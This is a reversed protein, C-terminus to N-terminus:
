NVPIGFRGFFWEDDRQRRERLRRRTEFVDGEVVQALASPFSSDGAHRAFTRELLREGFHVVALRLNNHLCTAMDVDYHFRQRFLHGVEVSPVVLCEYGLLWLRLSLESDEGGWGQFGADFGGASEFVERRMAFFCGCLMPVPHPEASQWGLWRCGFSLDDFTYGYGKASANGVVSIAPGAAGVQARALVPLLGELWGFGVRVHADSFVLVEGSASAAGLNRARAVGLRQDPKLLRVAAYTEDIFDASSDTSCDDVVIVESRPPLTAMIGHVTRELEEGENHSILVV